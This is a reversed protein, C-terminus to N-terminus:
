NGRRRRQEPGFISANWEGSLIEFPIKSNSEICVNFFKAEYDCPIEINDWEPIPSDLFEEESFGFQTNNYTTPIPPRGNPTSIVTFDFKDNGKDPKPRFHLTYSKVNFNTHKTPALEGYANTFLVPASFQICSRYTTPEDHEEGIIRHDCCDENNDQDGLYLSELHIGGDRDRVLM